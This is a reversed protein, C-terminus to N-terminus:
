GAATMPVRLDGSPSTVPLVMTGYGRANVTVTYTGPALWLRIEGADNTSGSTVFKKSADTAGASAAIPAGTSADVVRLLVSAAPKLRIEIESSGAAIPRRETAYRDRQAVLVYDGDGLEIFFRGESDSYVPPSFGRRDAHEASVSTNPLPAGTADDVVRGRIALSRADIDLVQDGTVSVKESWITGGRAAHVVVVYDGSSLGVIEYRGNQIAASAQTQEQPRSPRFQINGFDLPVGNRSVRGRFTHGSGFSLEVFPAAGNEVQVVKETTQRQRAGGVAAFISVRGDTVGQLAFNGQADPEASARMNPGHAQVRVRAMEEPAVGTVRGTIRGGRGLVLTVSDDDVTQRTDVFGQKGAVLTVRGEPLGSLRFTGDSSTRAFLYPGVLEARVQAGAVPAGSEEQVRGRIERGKELVVDLRADGGSEVEVTKRSVRYGSRAFQITNEGRSVSELKYVGSSDTAAREPQRGPGSVREVVTVNVGNLASGDSATVRGTVVGARELRVDAKAPQGEAVSIGTASGRGYGRATVQITYEGPEVEITFEGRDNQQQPTGQAAPFSSSRMASVTFQTVPNGTEADIVRGTIQGPKRMTITVDSAPAVVDRPASQGRPSMREAVLTIPGRKANGIKFVGNADTRAQINGPERDSVRVVAGAVPTGDSHIVRGAVEVGREVTVRLPSSAARIKQGTLRVAVITPGTVQVDYTGESVFFSATGNATTQFCNPNEAPCPAPIRRTEEEETWQLLHVSAGAVPQRAEDIVSV